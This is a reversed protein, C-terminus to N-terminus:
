VLNYKKLTDVFLRLGVESDIHYSTVFGEGELSPNEVFDISPDNLVNKTIPNDGYKELERKQSLHYLKKGEKNHWEIVHGELICGCDGGARIDTKGVPDKYIEQAIRLPVSGGIVVWYYWARRFTFSGPKGTISAPVEHNVREGRVVEIGSRVLEKEIKTDCDQDGALNKM